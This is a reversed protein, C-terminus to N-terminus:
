MVNGPARGADRLWALLHANFSPPDEFPWAHSWPGAQTRLTAIGGGANVLAVDRAKKEATHGGCRGDLATHLHLLPCRLTCLRATVDYPQWASVTSM